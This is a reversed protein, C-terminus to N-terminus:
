KNALSKDICKTIKSKIQIERNPNFNQKIEEDRKYKSNPKKEVIENGFMMTTGCQHCLSEGVEFLHGCKCTVDSMKKSKAYSVGQSKALTYIVGLIQTNNSYFIEYLRHPPFVQSSEDKFANNELAFVKQDTTIILYLHFVGINIDNFLETSEIRIPLVSDYKILQGCSELKFCLYEYGKKCSIIKRCRQKCVLCKGNNVQSVYQKFVNESNNKVECLKYFSENGFNLSLSCSKVVFEALINEHFPCNQICDKYNHFLNMMVNLADLSDEILIFRDYLTSFKIATEEIKVLKTETETAKLLKQQIELILPSQKNITLKIISLRLSKLLLLVKLATQFFSTKRSPNPHAFKKNILDNLTFSKNFSQCIECTKLHTLSFKDHISKIM